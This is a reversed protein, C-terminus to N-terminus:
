NHLANNHKGDLYSIQFHEVVINYHYITSNLVSALSTTLLFHLNYFHNMSRQTWKTFRMTSWNTFFNVAEDGHECSDGTVWIQGLHILDMCGCNMEQIDVTFNAERGHRRGGPPRGAESLLEAVTLITNQVRFFTAAVIYPVIISSDVSHSWRRWFKVIMVHTNKVRMSGCVV